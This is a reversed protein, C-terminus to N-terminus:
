RDDDRFRYGVGHVTQLYHPDGPDVELKRRINKVHADIAREYSEFAVGHVADLLQSRTFVRGPERALAALLQFETPTLEVDRGGATVRMRPVDLTVDSARIIDAPAVPRETRRLVARVRAVLEKPSFPKTVYDDAGLELGVLKDSEDSRGSLIVIPVSSGQRLARAVDLGDLKPLGLDLVILDPRDSRARALAESGDSASVVAFGAHELYDRALEVIKPEDDVLLITKM